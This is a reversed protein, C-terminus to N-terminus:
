CYRLALVTIDDFRAVEQSFSDLAAHLSHVLQDIPDSAHETLCQELRQEGFFEETKNMADTVGDTYLLIGEGRALKTTFTRYEVGEIVGVM